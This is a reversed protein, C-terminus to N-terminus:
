IGALGPVRAFGVVGQGIRGFGHGRLTQLASMEHARRQRQIGSRQQGGATPPPPPPSEPLAPILPLPDPPPEALLEALLEALPELLADLLPDALLEALPEPLPEPLPLAASGLGGHNTVV